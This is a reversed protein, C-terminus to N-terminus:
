RGGARRWCSAPVSCAGSSAWCRSSSTCSTQGAAWPSSSSSSAAWACWCRRSSRRGAQARGSSRQPSVSDPHGQGCCSLEDLKPNDGFSPLGLHGGPQTVGLYPTRIAFADWTSIVEWLQSTELILPPGSHGGPQTMELIQPVWM